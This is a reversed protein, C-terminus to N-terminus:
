RSKPKALGIVTWSSYVNYPYGNEIELASESGGCGRAGVSLNLPRFYLKFESMHSAIIGKLSFTHHICM